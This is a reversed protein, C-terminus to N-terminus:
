YKGGVKNRAEKRIKDFVISFYTLGGARIEDVKQKYNSQTYKIGSIFQNYAFIDM